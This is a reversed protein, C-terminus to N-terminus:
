LYLRAGTEATIGETQLVLRDSVSIQADGVVAIATNASIFLESASIGSLLDATLRLGGTDADSDGITVENAGLRLAGGDVDLVGDVTVDSTADLAIAGTSSLTAGEAILLEGTLGMVDTRVLDTQQGSRVRILASDGSLLLPPADDAENEAVVRAGAEVTVSDEGVLIIDPASLTVGEGITVTNAIVEIAEGDTQATREGGLLISEAGLNVLDEALLQVVGDAADNLQNVVSLSAGAIDVSAGRGAADAVLSGVLSLSEGAAFVVAGADSP